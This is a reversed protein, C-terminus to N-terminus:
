LGPPIEFLIATPLVIGGSIGWVIIPISSSSLNLSINPEPNFAEVVSMFSVIHHTTPTHNM